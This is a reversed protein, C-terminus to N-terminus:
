KDFHWRKIGAKDVRRCMDGTGKSKSLDPHFSLAVEIDPNDTLMKQNRIVGAPRGVMERCDKPCTYMWKKDAPLDWSHCWHPYYPRVDMGLLKGIEAAQSDLGIAAGHILIIYEPFVNYNKCMAEFADVVSEANDWHRDGTVVIKM